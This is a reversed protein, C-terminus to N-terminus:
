IVKFGSPILFGDGNLPNNKDLGFCHKYNFQLFNQLFATANSPDSYMKTHAQNFEFEVLPLKKFKYIVSLLDNLILFDVTETDIKIFVNENFLFSNQEIFDSLKICKIKGEVEEDFFDIKSLGLNLYEETYEDSLQYNLSGENIKVFGETDSVAKNYVEVTNTNKYKDKAYGALISSAEFM